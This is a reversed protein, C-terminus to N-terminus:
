KLKTMCSEYKQPQHQSRARYVLDKLMKNRYKDNFNNAVCRLCYRHHAYPPNWGVNPDRIAAQIGAHRDSILYIGERQTVQSRLTYLFWSWSNSSENEVIAFALPFIHGNADISIAILLKGIYKGYLFTGDIQIVPRCHKFGEVCPGFAWFVRMFRVNGNCDALVSTKWVVKTGPNTLKVINM